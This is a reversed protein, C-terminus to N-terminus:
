NASGSGTTCVSKRKCFRQRYYMSIKMCLVAAQLVYPNKYVSGSGRTCVSKWKCFRQRYYMGVKM